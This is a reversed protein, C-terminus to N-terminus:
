DNKVEIQDSNNLYSKEQGFVAYTINYTQNDSKVEIIAADTLPGKIGFQLAHPIAIRLTGAMDENILIGKATSCSGLLITADKAFIKGLGLKGLEKIDETTLMEGKMGTHFAKQSGHASFYGINGGRQNEGFLGIVKLIEEKPKSGLTFYLFKHDSLNPIVADMSQSLATNHDADADFYVLIKQDKALSLNGKALEERNKIAELVKAMPLRYATHMDHLSLKEITEVLKDLDKLSSNKCISLAYDSVSKSNPSKLFNNSLIKYVEPDVPSKYVESDFASEGSTKWKNISLKESAKWQKLAIASSIEPFIDNISKAIKIADSDKPKSFDYNLLEKLLLDRNTVSKENNNLEAKNILLSIGLIKNTKDNNTSMELAYQDLENGLKAKDIVTWFVKRIEPDMNSALAFLKYKDDKNGVTGIKVISDAAQNRISYNPDELMKILLPLASQTHNLVADNILESKESANLWSLNSPIAPGKPPEVTHLIQTIREDKLSILYQYIEVAVPSRSASLKRASYTRQEDSADSAISNHLLQLYARRDNSKLIDCFKERKEPTDQKNFLELLKQENASYSCKKMLQLVINLHNLPVESLKDDVLKLIKVVDQSQLPSRAYSLMYCIKCLGNVDAKGAEQFVRDTANLERIARLRVDLSRHELLSTYAKNLQEHNFKLGYALVHMGIENKIPFISYLFGDLKSKQDAEPITKSFAQASTSVIEIRDPGSLKEDMSGIQMFLSMLAPEFEPKSFQGLQVLIEKLKVPNNTKVLDSLTAVDLIKSNGLMRITQRSLTTNDSLALQKVANFVEPNEMKIGKSALFPNVLNEKLSSVTYPNQNLFNLQQDLNVMPHKESLLRNLRWKAETSVPSFDILAVIAAARVKQDQESTITKEILNLKSKDELLMMLTFALERDKPNQSTLLKDYVLDRNKAKSLESIAIVVSDPNNSSLDTVLKNTEAITEQVQLRFDQPVLYGNSNHDTVPKLRLTSLYSYSM